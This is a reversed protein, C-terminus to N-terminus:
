EHLMYHVDEEIIRVMCEAVDPDFQTGAHKKIEDRAVDQPLYKRYSRNSTMADYSDAVAVIRVMFPIDEGSLKDPYGTGDYHEHHWRAAEALEPRSSIESLIDYGFIPHSQILNFEEDSLKSTKNIIEDPIGIKGIDHLLGMYYLMDQDDLSLGMQKGIM